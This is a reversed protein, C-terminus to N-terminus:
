LSRPAGVIFELLTKNFRAEYNTKIGYFRPDALLAKSTGIVKLNHKRALHTVLDNDPVGFITFYNYSSAIFRFDGVAFCAEADREPNANRLADLQEGDNFPKRGGVSPEISYFIISDKRGGCAVMNLMVAVCVLYTIAKM